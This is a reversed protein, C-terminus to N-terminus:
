LRAGAAFYERVEEATGREYFGAEEGTHAIRDQRLASSSVGYFASPTHLRVFPYADRWHGGPAERRDVLTVAVDAEALLTDAFALGSAGAGVVLYDTDM